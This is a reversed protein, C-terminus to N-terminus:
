LAKRNESPIYFVSISAAAVGSGGLHQAYSQTADLLHQPNQESLGREEM